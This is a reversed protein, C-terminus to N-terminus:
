KLKFLEYRNRPTWNEFATEMGEVMTDCMRKSSFGHESNLFFERGKLGRAKREEKPIDYWYKM